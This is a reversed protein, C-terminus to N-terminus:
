NQIEKSSLTAAKRGREAIAVAFKLYLKILVRPFPNTSETLDSSKSDLWSEEKTFGEPVTSGEQKTNKIYILLHKKFWSLNREDAQNWLTWEGKSIKNRIMLKCHKRRAKIIWCICNIKSAGLIQPPTM